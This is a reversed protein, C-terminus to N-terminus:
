NVALFGSKFSNGSNKELNISYAAPRTKARIRTPNQTVWYRTHLLVDSGSLRSTRLDFIQYNHWAIMWEITPQGAEHVWIRALVSHRQLDIEWSKIVTVMPTAPVKSSPRAIPGSSRSGSLQYIMQLQKCVSQLWNMGTIRM